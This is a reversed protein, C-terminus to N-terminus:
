GLVRRYSRPFVDEASVCVCVRVCGCLSVSCLQWSRWFCRQSLPSLLCEEQLWTEERGLFVEILIRLLHAVNHTYCYSWCDAQYIHRAPFSLSGIVYSRRLEKSMLFAGTSSFVCDTWFSSMESTHNRRRSRAFSALFVIIGASAVGRYHIM